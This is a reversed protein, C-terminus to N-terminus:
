SMIRCSRSEGGDDDEHEVLAHAPFEDRYFFKGHLNEVLPGTEGPVHDDPTEAGVDEREEARLVRGDVDRQSFLRDYIGVVYSREPNEHAYPSGTSIELRRKLIPKLQTTTPPIDHPKSLPSPTRLDRSSGEARAVRPKESGPSPPTHSSAHRKRAGPPPSPSERKGPIRRRPIAHLHPNRRHIAAPSRDEEKEVVSRYWVLRAGQTPSLM